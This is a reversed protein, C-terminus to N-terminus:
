GGLIQAAAQVRLDNMFNILGQVQQPTIHPVLDGRRQITTGDSLLVKVEFHASKSAPQEGSAVADKLLVVINGISVPTRTPELDFAM